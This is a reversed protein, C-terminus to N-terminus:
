QYSVILCTNILLLKEPLNAVPSFVRFVIAEVFAFKAKFGSVKENWFHGKNTWCYKMYLFKCSHIVFYM